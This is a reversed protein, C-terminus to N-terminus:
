DTTLARFEPKRVLEGILQQVAPGFAQAVEQCAKDAVFSGSFSHVTNISTSKGKNNSVTLAFTWNGDSIGSSFDVSDLRGTLETPSAPDYAGALKLENILAEQIYGAFSPKVTVPGAARCTITSQGAVAAQFTGVKVPAIKASKISEVNQLSAGYPSANYACGSALASVGIILPIFARM